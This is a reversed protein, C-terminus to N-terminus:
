PADQPLPVDIVRPGPPADPFGQLAARFLYPLVSEDVAGLRDHSAHAEHLVQSTRRDRLIVSVRLTVWPPEMSAVWGPGWWVSGGRWHHPSRGHPYAYAGPPFLGWPGFPGHSGYPEYRLRPEVRVALGLQVLVDAREAQDPSLLSFGLSQLTPLAAAQLKDQSVAGPAQPAQQSPLVDFVFTGAKRGPPWQGFSQVQSTVSTAACGSLWAAGCVVCLLMLWRVFGRMCGRLFSRLIGPHAMRLGM